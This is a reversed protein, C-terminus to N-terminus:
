PPLRTTLFGGRNVSHTLPGNPVHAICINKCVTVVVVRVRRDMLSVRSPLARAADSLQGDSHANTPPVWHLVGTYYVSSSAVAQHTPEPVHDSHGSTRFAVWCYQLTWSPPAKKSVTDCPHPTASTHDWSYVVHESHSLHSSTHGGM